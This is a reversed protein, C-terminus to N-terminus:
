SRSRSLCGRHPSEERWNPLFGAFVEVALSGLAAGMAGYRRVLLILAAAKVLTALGTV